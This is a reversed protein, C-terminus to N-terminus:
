GGVVMKQLRGRSGGRTGGARRPGKERAEAGGGGGAGGARLAGVGGGASRNTRGAGRPSVLGGPAGGGACVAQGAGVAGRRPCRGAHVACQPCALDNGRDKM